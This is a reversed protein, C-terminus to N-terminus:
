LFRNGKGSFFKYKGVGDIASMPWHSMLSSLASCFSSSGPWPKGHEWQGRGPHTAVNWISTTPHTLRPGPPTCLWGVIAMSYSYSLLRHWQSSNTNSPQWQLMGLRTSRLSQLKSWFWRFLKVRLNGPAAGSVRSWYKHPLIYSKVNRVLEEPTAWRLAVSHTADVQDM